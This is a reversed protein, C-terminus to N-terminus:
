SKPIFAEFVKVVMKHNKFFSLAVIGAGEKSPKKVGAV